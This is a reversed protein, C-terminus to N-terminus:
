FLSQQRGGSIPLLPWRGKIQYHYPSGGGEVLLLEDLTWEVAEKIKPATM